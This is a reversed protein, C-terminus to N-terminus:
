EGAENADWLDWLDTLRPCLVLSSRLVGDLDGVAASQDGVPPSARQRLAKIMFEEMHAALNKPCIAIGVFIVVSVSYKSLLM